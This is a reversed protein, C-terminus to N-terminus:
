RPSHQYFPSDHLAIVTTTRLNALVALGAVAFLAKPAAGTLAAQTLLGLGVAIVLVTLVFNQSGIM